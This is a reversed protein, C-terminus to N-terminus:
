SKIRPPFLAIHIILVIGTYYDAIMATCLLSLPLYTQYFDAMLIQYSRNKPPIIVVAIYNLKYTRNLTILLYALLSLLPLIHNIHILMILMAILEIMFIALATKRFSKPNTNVAFTQLGAQIDYDRDLFQHGLIGRLGYCMAWIGTSIFWIWNVSEGLIFSISSIMYLSTFIHSGSADAIVGWLGRNKLRFPKFSYLTFSIWPAAYLAISLWDPYLFYCCYIGTLLCTLPLIWKLVSNAKAMRNPKGVAIDDEIDTIDNIISVYIAGVIISLLLFLLHTASPVLEGKSILITAYAIALLPPLKYKWWTTSRSISLINYALSKISSRLKM